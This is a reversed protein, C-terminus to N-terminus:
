YNLAVSNDLQAINSNKERFKAPSVGTQKKYFRCFYSVDKFELQYAIESITMDTHAMLVMSENILYKSIVQKTSEGAITQCVRNLHTKSIGLDKTFDDINKNTPVGHKIMKMFDKYYALERTSAVYEKETEITMRFVKIILLLLLTELFLSEKEAKLTFEKNMRRVSDMVDNFEDTYNNMNLLRVRNIEYLLEEDKNMIKDIIASSVSLTYGKIDDNFQFGHLNNEPMIIINLGSFKKSKENIILTGSGSEIFFFQYLNGHFHPKIEWNYKRCSYDIAVLNLFDASVTSQERGYLGFNKIEVKM